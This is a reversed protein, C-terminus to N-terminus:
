PLWLPPFGVFRRFLPTVRVVEEDEIHPWESERQREILGFALLPKLAYGCIIGEETDYESRMAARMRESVRPPLIQRAIGKVARWDHAM